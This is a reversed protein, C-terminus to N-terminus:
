VCRSTYLLCGRDETGAPPDIIRRNGAAKDRFKRGEKSLSSAYQRIDCAKSDRTRSGDQYGGICSIHEGALAHHVIEYDLLHLLLYLQQSFGSGDSSSGPASNLIYECGSCISYLSFPLLLSLSLPLPCLLFLSHTSLLSLSLTPPCFPFLSHSCFAAESLSPAM